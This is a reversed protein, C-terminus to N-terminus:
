VSHNNYKNGKLVNSEKVKPTTEAEYGFKQAPMAYVETTATWIIIDHLTILNTKGYSCKSNNGRNSKTCELLHEKYVNSVTDKFDCGDRWNPCKIKLKPVAMFLNDDRVFKNEWQHTSCVKM